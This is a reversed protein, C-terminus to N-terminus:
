CYLLISLYMFVTGAFVFLHWIVHSWPNNQSYFITGVTFTIGGAVLLALGVPGLAKFLPWLAIVCFWGMIVYFLTSWKSKRPKALCKYVIGAIAMAWVVGFITWGLWGKIAVLCYPTYTGAILVYIMSHDFIRFVRKARTFSLAHYLTSMLYFLILISGYITFTVVRMPSGTSVARLILFILGVISAAVGFVHTIANAVEVLIPHNTANIQQKPKQQIM